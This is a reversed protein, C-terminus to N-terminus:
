GLPTVVVQIEIVGKTVLQVMTGDALELRLM